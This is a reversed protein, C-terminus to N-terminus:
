HWKRSHRAAPDGLMRGLAEALGAVDGPEVLAGHVGDQITEPIGGIRTAVIPREFGIATMLVGSQDIELYPLAVVTASRFLAAVEREPIFRLNWEVRNQIGLSCELQKLVTM